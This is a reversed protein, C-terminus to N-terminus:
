FGSQRGSLVPVASRESSPSGVDIEDPRAYAISPDRREDATLRAEGQVSSAPAINGM